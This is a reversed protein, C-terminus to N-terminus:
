AKQDHRGRKQNGAILVPIQSVKRNKFHRKLHYQKRACKGNGHFLGKSGNHPICQVMAQCTKYSIHPNRIWQIVAHFLKQIQQHPETDKSHSIPSRGTQPRYKRHLSPVPLLTGQGRPDKIPRLSALILKALLHPLSCSLSRPQEPSHPLSDAAELFPNVVPKQM